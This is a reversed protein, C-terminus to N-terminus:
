KEADLPLKHNTQYLHKRVNEYHYSVRTWVEVSKKIGLIRRTAMRLDEGLSHYVLSTVGIYFPRACEKCVRSAKYICTGFWTIQENGNDSLNKTGMIHGQDIGMAFEMGPNTAFQQKFGESIAYSIKFAAIVAQKIAEDKGPFVILLAYPSFCNVFGGHQEAIATLLEKCMTYTQACKRRGNEKLLYALNKIEFYIVTAEMYIGTCESNLKSAEKINPTEIYEFESAALTNLKETLSEQWSM